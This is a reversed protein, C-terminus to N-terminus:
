HLDLGFFFAYHVYSKGVERAGTEEVWMEALRVRWGSDEIPKYVFRNGPAGTVPVTGLDGDSLIPDVPIVVLNQDDLDDNSM